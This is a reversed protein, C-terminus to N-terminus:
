THLSPKQLFCKLRRRTHFGLIWVKRSAADDVGLIKKANMGLPQCHGKCPGRPPLLRPLALSPHSQSRQHQLVLRSPGATICIRACGAACCLGHTPARWQCGFHQPASQPLATEPGTCTPTHVHRSHYQQTSPLFDSV